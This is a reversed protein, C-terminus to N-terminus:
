LLVSIGLTGNIGLEVHFPDRRVFQNLLNGGRAWVSFRSNFSYEAYAGLDVWMPIEVGAFFEKRATELEVSAGIRLRSRYDYLARVSSTLAPFDLCSAEETLNTKRYLANGELQFCRMKWSFDLSASLMDFDRFVYVPLPGGTEMAVSELPAGGIVSWGAKLFYNFSSGIHGRIGAFASIKEKVVNQFDETYAPTFFHCLHKFDSYTLAYRGGGAGAFLNLSNHFFGANFLIDPALGISGSVYDLRVGARLSLVKGNSEMHPMLTYRIAKRGKFSGGMRNYHLDYGVLARYKGGMVPGFAGNLRVDTEYLAPASLEHSVADSSFRGSLNADYYFYRPDDANSSARMNVGASHYNGYQMWDKFFIGDYDAKWSIDAKELGWRGEVAFKEELDYGAQRVEYLGLNPALKWYDGAYGYMDQVISMSFNGSPAPSYVADLVPYLGYGAGARAYLRHGAFSSKEPSYDIVYPTFEFAGKYPSDFVSYDFKYDFHMVSDPVSVPIDQKRIDPAASHYDNTVQVQPNLNQGFLPAAVSVSLLIVSIKKM